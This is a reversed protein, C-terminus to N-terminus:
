AQQKSLYGKTHTYFIWSLSSSFLFTLTKIYLMNKDLLLLVYQKKEEIKTQHARVELWLYRLDRLGFRRKKRKKKLGRPGAPDNFYTTLYRHACSENWCSFPCKIKTLFLFSLPLLPLLPLCNALSIPPNTLSRVNKILRIDKKPPDCGSKLWMFCIKWSFPAV